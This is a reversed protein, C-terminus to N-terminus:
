EECHEEQKTTWLNFTDEACPDGRYRKIKEQVLKKLNKINM